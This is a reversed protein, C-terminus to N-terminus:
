QKRAVLLMEPSRRTLDRSSFGDFAEEVILGARACLEALRTPTYLRIRHRRRSTRGNKRRLTSQISLVGSLPDFSREQGVVSGDGTEWWDRSLFRSMVGDRNAGQWVLIGGPKLVRSFESIVRADDSPNDFFGFSTYLNVVADYRGSWGAPLKRMDARRYRLSESTGRKAALALLERSFDIGDVRFGAEALLHAHRGQGCPADLV